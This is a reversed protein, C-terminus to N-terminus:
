WQEELRKLRFKNELKASEVALEQLQATANWTKIMSDEYSEMMKEGFIGKGAAAAPTDPTTFAKFAANILGPITRELIKAVEPPIISEEKRNALAQIAKQNAVIGKGLQDIAEGFPQLVKQLEIIEQPNADAEEQKEEAM